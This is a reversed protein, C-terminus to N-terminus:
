VGFISAELFLDCRLTNAHWFVNWCMQLVFATVKHRIEFEICNTDRL